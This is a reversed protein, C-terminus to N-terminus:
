IRETLCDDPFARCFRQCQFTERAARWECTQAQDWAADVCGSLLIAVMVAAMRRMTAEKHPAVSAAGWGEGWRPKTGACRLM